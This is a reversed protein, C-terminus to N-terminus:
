LELVVKGMMGGQALLRHAAAAEALPFTQALHIKLLQLGERLSLADAQDELV